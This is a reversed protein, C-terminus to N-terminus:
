GKRYRSGVACSRTCFRVKAHKNSTFSSGCLECNKEVNDLGEKRRWASKCANTCFKNDHGVRTSKFSKGCQKCNLDIPVFNIWAQKGIESHKAKGELSSHWAKTLPRIRNLLTRNNFRRDEDWEHEAFHDKVTLCELNKIDNNLPDDDMHHIHM